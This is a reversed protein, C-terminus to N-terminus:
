RILAGVMSYNPGWTIVLHGDPTLPPNTSWITKLKMLNESFKFMAASGGALFLVCTIVTDQM